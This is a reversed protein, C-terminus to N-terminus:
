ATEIKRQPDAHLAARAEATLVFGQDEDNWEWRGMDYPDEVTPTVPFNDHPPPSTTQWELTNAGWPNAPALKGRKASWVWNILVLILGLFMTYAGITSVFHHIWFQPMYDAYRRPMGQSGMIFQIFFALNFGIFTVIVSISGMKENIMRGFMKPFWHYVAALFAFLVSGMMVYHFHAVIFYTDHFHVDVPIAGLFLGTLGGITFLVLFGLACLMATHLRISAGHLTSVWNFVKIASPIAVCFTLASFFMSALPSQGSTFMHHGWVLASLFAIAVSSLAIFKYGFLSRRCHSAIVESIVGFAPLIMIYVAPHSYFWFFHQYMVPDGGLAPDFIGVSFVREVLLLLLTIALVPTALLVIVATAYLSWLLLPLRFWTMGKPRLSHITAIFNVATLISSFGLIFAGFTAPVVGSKSISTSYPTYFTWGTDLGMPFLWAWGSDGLSPIASRMVGGLLLWVFFLAGIMYIWFSALNLRPFAMDKAGLMIPLVFNGIIAPIAPIIFLFVMVAGHLTFMHNYFNWSQTPNGPFFTPGPMILETRLLMAFIGGIFTFVGVAYFYMLAIRKHDLTFAWSMFGRTHTLYNDGPPLPQPALSDALTPTIASM